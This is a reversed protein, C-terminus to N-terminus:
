PAAGEAEVLPIKYHETVGAVAKTMESSYPGLMFRIGDEIILREALRNGRTPDSKDDYSEIKLIYKEGDVRVGGAQNIRDVALEYGNYTDNGSVEYRGSASLAAGLTIIKEEDQDSPALVVMVTAFGVAATALVISIKVKTQMATGM